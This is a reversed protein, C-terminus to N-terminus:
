RETPSTFAVSRFYADAASMLREVEPAERAPSRIALELRIVRTPAGPHRCVYGLRTLYRESDRTTLSDLHIGDFRVCEAGNLRARNFHGTGQHLAAVEAALTAEAAVVFAQDDVSADIATAGANLWATEQAGSRQLVAAAADPGTRSWTAGAPAPLALGALVVTDQPAPHVARAAPPACGAIISVLALWVFRVIFKRIPTLYRRM